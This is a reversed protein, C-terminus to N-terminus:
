KLLDKLAAEAKPYKFQFGLEQLRRPLQRQSCLVIAAKEGLVLQMAFAPAPMFAPRGLMQGVLQSLEANRVPFPACLNFAGSASPHEILFRIADVEDEMHIWPFWQQGNGLPGGAFFKFPLTVVPLVGGATDFVVGTRIIVRRVGLTEAEATSAEWTKCVEATFDNGPGSAETLEEDGRSGYYGVASSQILVKPKQQAARIAEVVARGVNLRSETIVRKYSASWRKFLIAPLNEGAISEGALNVIADAGDALHGWGQATRADWKEARATKPLDTVKAPDRTLVIVEHNDAALSATLERGILGAGGTILIRM